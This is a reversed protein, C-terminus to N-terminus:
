ETGGTAPDPELPKLIERQSVEETKPPDLEWARTAKARKTAKEMAWAKVTM